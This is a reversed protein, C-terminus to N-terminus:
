VVARELFFEQFFVTFFLLSVVHFWFNRLSIGEPVKAPVFEWEGEDDREEGEVDDYYEEISKKYGGVPQILDRARFTSTLLPPM